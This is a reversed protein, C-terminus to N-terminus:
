GSGMLKSLKRCESMYNVYEASRISSDAVRFFINGAGEKFITLLFM